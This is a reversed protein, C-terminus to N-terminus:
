SIGREQSNQGGRTSSEWVRDPKLPLDRVRIGNARALANGIAAAVPIIGGEGMGKAGEPGPGDGNEIFITKQQEPLDLFNPVRYDALTGNVLQGEEYRMEEFFTHGIGQMVAGEEQGHCQALNIAKGIDAAGVYQLVKVAGTDPDLEIEVMGVGSEYFLPRQGGADIGVGPIVVGQGIVEGGEGGFIQRVVESAPVIRAAECINGDSWRLSAVDTEWLRSAMSLLQNKVDRVAMQVATGTVVTTRSSSTRPDFPGHLTDPPAVYVKEIPIALENAAVQSLVTRAGQGIEASGVLVTLSGDCNYRALAVSPPAAGPDSLAIAMGKARYPKTARENWRIAEAARDLMMGLDGDLPKMGPRPAEGRRLVNRRRFELPDLGLKKALIDMQSEGAWVAQPAGVARFSGAPATNTYVAHARVKLNPFRYPGVVRNAAKDAITPGIMAYAGNDLYMECERAVLTGDRKAGTRIRCSMGLRRSTLMAENVSYSIKVPQGTKFALAVALPEISSTQSKSGFGGGVYPTIVRVRNQPLRFIRALVDRVSFPSQTSTWITVGDSDTRAISTHPELSYHFIMPFSFEDEVIVVDPDQFAADIDGVEFGAVHLINTGPLPKAARTRYSGLHEHVLPAQLAKASDLDSVPTLDEYEVEILHLAEEAIFEKEAAVVAVPEGTYRVKDVALVPRDNIYTGM